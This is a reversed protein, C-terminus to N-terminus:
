GGFTYVYLNKTAVTILADVVLGRITIDTIQAIPNPATRNLHSAVWGNGGAGTSALWLLGSNSYNAERPGVLFYAMGSAAGNVAGTALAPVAVETANLKLGISAGNAAGATKRYQCAILIWEGVEITLGGLTSLDTAALNNTSQEVLHSGEERFSLDNQTELNNLNAASIPTVGNVWATPVYLPM